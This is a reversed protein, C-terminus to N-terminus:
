RDFTILYKQNIHVELHRSKVSNECFSFMLRAPSFDCTLFVQSGLAPPFAFSNREMLM